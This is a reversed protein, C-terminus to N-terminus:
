ASTIRRPRGKGQHYNESNMWERLKSDLITWQNGVKEAPFVGKIALRRLASVEYGAITAAESLSLLKDGEQTM